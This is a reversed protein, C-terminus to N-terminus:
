PKTFEYWDLLRDKKLSIICNWIDLFHLRTAVMHPWYRALGWIWSIELAIIWSPSHNYSFLALQHLCVGGPAVCFECYWVYGMDRAEGYFLLKALYSVSTSMKEYLSPSLFFYYPSCEPAYLSFIQPILLTVLRPLGQQYCVRWPYAEGSQGSFFIFFFLFYFHCTVHSM